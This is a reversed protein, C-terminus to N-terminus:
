KTPGVNKLGEVFTQINDWENAFVVAEDTAVRVYDDLADEDFQWDKYVKVDVNNKVLKMYDLINMYSAVAEPCALELRDLHTLKSFDINSTLPAYVKLEKINDFSEVLGPAVVDFGYLELRELSKMNKIFGFREPIIHVDQSYGNSLSLRKINPADILVDLSAIEGNSDHYRHISLDELNNCYKIWSLDESYDARYWEMYNFDNVCLEMDRSYEVGKFRAVEKAVYGSVEVVTDGDVIKHIAGEYEDPTSKDDLHIGKLKFTKEDIQILNDGLLEQIDINEPATDNLVFTITNDVQTLYPSIEGKYVFVQENIQIFDDGLTQRVDIIEPLSNDLAYVNRYLHNLYPSIKKSIDSNSQTQEHMSSNSYSEDTSEVEHAVEIENRCGSFLSVSIAFGLIQVAFFKKKDVLKDFRALKHTKNIELKM